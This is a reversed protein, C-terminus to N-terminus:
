AQVTYNGRGMIFPERTLRGLLRQCTLALSCMKLKLFVSGGSVKQYRTSYYHLLIPGVAVAFTWAYLRFKPVFREEMTAKLAHWRAM